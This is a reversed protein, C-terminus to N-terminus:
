NRRQPPIINWGRDIMPAIGPEREVLQDRLAWAVATAMQAAPGEAEPNRLALQIIAILQLCPMCDLTFSIPETGNLRTMAEIEGKSPRASLAAGQESM